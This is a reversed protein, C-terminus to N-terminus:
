RAPALDWADDPTRLVAVACVTLGLATLGWSAADLWRNQLIVFSVFHLPQSVILAVCAWRPVVRWLACGLLVAGLIHGFVFLGIGLGSVGHSAVAELYPVTTARDFEPRAAVENLLEASPVLAAGLYAAVNVGAAVTALVPRRRRALRAAALFAPVLTLLAITGLWTSARQAGPHAAIADLVGGLDDAAYTPSVLPGIAIALAPVPLLLAAAVRRFTRADRRRRTPTPTPATLTTSV